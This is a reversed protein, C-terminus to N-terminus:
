FVSPRTAYTLSVVLIVMSGVIWSSVRLCPSVRDPWKSAREIPIDITNGRVLRAGCPLTRELKKVVEAVSTASDDPFELTAEFVEFTPATPFMIVKFREVVARVNKVRRWNHAVDFITLPVFEHPIVPAPPPFEPILSAIIGM